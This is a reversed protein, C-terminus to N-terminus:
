LRVSAVGIRLWNSLATGCGMKGAVADAERLLSAKVASSKPPIAMPPEGIKTLSESSPGIAVAKQRTASAKRGSNM